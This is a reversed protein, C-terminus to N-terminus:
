RYDDMADANLDQSESLVIFYPVQVIYGLDSSQGFGPVLAGSKRKVSPDPQYFYPVYAVPIGSMDLWSHSFEVVKRNQDHVVKVARIQWLPARSPDEACPLCPTYTAEEATTIAGDRREGRAATLRSGDALIAHLDEVVGSKLDGSLEISKGSVVEGSPEYLTVNGEATVVNRLEDYMVTDAVVKRGAQVAEVNGTARTIKNRSDYTVEDAKFAIPQNKALPEIARAPGVALSAIVCLAIVCLVAALCRKRRKPDRSNM